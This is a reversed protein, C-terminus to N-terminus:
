LLLDWPPLALDQLNTIRFEKSVLALLQPFTAPDPTLAEAIPLNARRMRGETELWNLKFPHHHSGTIERLRHRKPGDPGNRHPKLPKWDIRCLLEPHVFPPQYILQFMVERDPLARVATGILSLGQVINGAIEVSLNVRHKGREDEVWDQLVVNKEAEFLEKLSAM